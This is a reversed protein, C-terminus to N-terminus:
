LSDNILLQSAGVRCGCPQAVHITPGRTEIADISTGCRPCETPQDITSDPRLCDKEAWTAHTQM